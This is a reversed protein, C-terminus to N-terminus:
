DEARTLWGTAATLVAVAAMLFAVPVFSGTYILGTVITFLGSLSLGIASSLGSSTGAILPRYSVAGALSLPTVIGNAMS